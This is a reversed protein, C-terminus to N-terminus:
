PRASRNNVGFWDCARVEYDGQCPGVLEDAPVPPVTLVLDYSCIVEPTANDPALHLIMESYPPISAGEKPRYALNGALAFEFFPWGGRRAEVLALVHHHVPLVHEGLHPEYILSLSRERPAEENLVDLSTLCRVEASYARADEHLRLMGILGVLLVLAVMAWRPRASLRPLVMPVLLLLCFALRNWLFLRPGAVLLGGLVVVFAVHYRWPFLSPLAGSRSGSDRPGGGARRARNREWLAALCWLGVLTWLLLNRAALGGAMGMAGSNHEVLLRLKKPIASPIQELPLVFPVQATMESYPTARFGGLFVSLLVGSVVAGAGAALWYRPRKEGLLFLGVLGLACLAWVFVHTYYLALLVVGTAAGGKLSANPAGREALGLAIMLLNTGLLMGLFGYGAVDGFMFLLAWAGLLPSRGVQRCWFALSLPLCALALVYVLKTAAYPGLAQALPWALLLEVWYPAVPNAELYPPLPAGSAFLATLRAHQPLDVVPLYACPALTVVSGLALVLAPLWMLARRFSWGRDQDLPLGGLRSTEGLEQLPVGFRGADEPRYVM